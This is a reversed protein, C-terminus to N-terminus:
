RRANERDAHSRRSRPFKGRDAPPRGVSELRFLSGIGSNQKNKKGAAM